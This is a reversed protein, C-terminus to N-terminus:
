RGLGTRAPRRRHRGVGAHGTGGANPFLLFYRSGTLLTGHHMGKRMRLVSDSGPVFIAPTATPDHLLQSAKAGDTVTFRMDVLGGAATVAVMDLHIGYDAQLAEASVLRAQTPDSPAAGFTTLAGAVLLPVVLVGAAAVLWSGASGALSSPIRLPWRKPDTAPGTTSRRDM